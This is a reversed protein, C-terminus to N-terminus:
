QRFNKTKQSIRDARDMIKKKVDDTRDTIKKRM